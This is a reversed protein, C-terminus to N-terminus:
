AGGQCPRWGLLMTEYWGESTRWAPSVGLDWRLREVIRTMGAPDRPWRVKARFYTGDKPATDAPQWAEIRITPDARDRVVCRAATRGDRGYTERKIEISLHSSAYVHFCDGGRTWALYPRGDADVGPVPDWSLSELAIRTSRDM